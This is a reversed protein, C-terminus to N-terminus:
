ASDSSGATYALSVHATALRQCLDRRRAAPMWDYLFMEIPKWVSVWGLIVFSEQLIRTTPRQPLGSIYWATALCASLTVAGILLARRATRFHEELKRNEAEACAAFHERLIPELEGELGDERPAPTAIEISVPDQRPIDKVRRLIYVEAADSLHGDRFPSRDIFDSLKGVEVRVASPARADKM